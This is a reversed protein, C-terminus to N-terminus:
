FFLSCLLLDAKISILSSLSLCTGFKLKKRTTCQAVIGTDAFMKLSGMNNLGKVSLFNTGVQGKMTEKFERDEWKLIYVIWSWKESMEWSISQDLIPKGNIDFHFSLMCSQFAQWSMQEMESLLFSSLVSCPSSSTDGDPLMRVFHVKRMWLIPSSSSATPPTLSLLSIVPIRRLRSIPWSPPIPLVCWAWLLLSPGDCPMRFPPSFLGWLDQGPVTARWSICWDWFLLLSGM